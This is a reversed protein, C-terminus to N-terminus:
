FTPMGERGFLSMTVSAQLFISMLSSYSIVSILNIRLNNLSWLSPLSTTIGMFSFSSSLFSSLASSEATYSFSPSAALSAPSFGDSFSLSFVDDGASELMLFILRFPANFKSTKMITPSMLSQEFSLVGSSFLCQQLITM